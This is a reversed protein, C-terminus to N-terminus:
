LVDIKLTLWVMIEQSNLNGNDDFVYGQQYANGGPYHYDSFEFSFVMIHKLEALPIWTTLYNSADRNMGPFVFLIPSTSRDASNPIYFHVEFPKESLPEYSTFEFIGTNVEFINTSSSNGNNDDPTRCTVLFFQCVFVAFLIKKM